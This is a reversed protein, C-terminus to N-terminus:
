FVCDDVLVDPDAAVNLDPVLRSDDLRLLSRVVHDTVLDDDYGLVDLGLAAERDSVCVRLHQGTRLLLLRVLCRRWPLMTIRMWSVSAEARRRSCDKRWAVSRLSRSRRWITRSARRPRGWWSM